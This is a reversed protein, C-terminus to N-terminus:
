EHEFQPLFTLASFHTPLTIRRIRKQCPCLDVLKLVNGSRSTSCIFFNWSTLQNGVFSPPHSQQLRSGSM